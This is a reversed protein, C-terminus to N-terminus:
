EGVEVSSYIMAEVREYVLETPTKDAERAENLLKRNSDYVLHKDTV